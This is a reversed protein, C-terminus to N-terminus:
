YVESPKAGGEMLRKWWALYAPVGGHWAATRDTPDPLGALDISTTVWNERITRDCNAAPGRWARPTAARPEDAYLRM